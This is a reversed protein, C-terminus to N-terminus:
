RRRKTRMAVLRDRIQDPTLATRRRSRADGPRPIPEPRPTKKSGALAWGWLNTVDILDGILHDTLSWDKSEGGLIARRTASGHPLHNLLM